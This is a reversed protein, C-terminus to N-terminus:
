AAGKLLCDTMSGLSANLDLGKWATQALCKSMKSFGLASVSPMAPSGDAGGVNDYDGGGGPEPSPPLSLAEPAVQATAEWRADNSWRYGVQPARLSHVDM